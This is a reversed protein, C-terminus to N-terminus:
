DEAGAHAPELDEVDELEEEDVDDNFGPFPDPDPADDADDEDDEDDPDPSDLSDILGRLKAAETLIAVDGAVQDRTAGALFVTERSGNLPETTISPDDYRALQGNAFDLAYRVKENPWQDIPKKLLSKNLTRTSFESLAESAPPRLKAIPNTPADESVKVADLDIALISAADRFRKAASMGYPAVNADRMLLLQIILQSRGAADLTEAHAIIPAEFSTHVFGHRKTQGPTLGLLKVAYRREDNHMEDLLWTIVFLLWREDLTEPLRAAIAAFQASRLEQKKKRAARAKAEASQREARYKKDASSEERKWRRQSIEESLARAAKVDGAYQKGRVTVIEGKYEKAMEATLPYLVGNWTSFLDNELGRVLQLPVPIGQKVADKWEYNERAKKLAKTLFADPVEALKRVIPAAAPSLEGSTFLAEFPKPVEMLAVRDSVTSKAIGLEKALQVVGYTKEGAARREDIIRKFAKAEEVPTLPKGENRVIQRVLRDAPDEVELTIQAPISKLKAALAGRVRREGDVLMWRGEVDPHPRVQIPQLVGHQAISDALEADVALRPQAPDPDIVDVPLYLITDHVLQDERLETTM